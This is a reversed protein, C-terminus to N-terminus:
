FEPAAGGGLSAVPRAAPESSAAAPAATEAVGVRPVWNAIQALTFDFSVSTGQGVKVIRVADIRILPLARKSAEAGGQVDGVKKAIEQVLQTFARSNGRSTRLPADGFAPDKCWIDIDVAPKHDTSPPNGWGGGEPLDQWDAGATGVALWGQKANAIDFGLAKGKLDVPVKDGEPSSIFMLGTRADLRAWPRGSSSQPFSLM